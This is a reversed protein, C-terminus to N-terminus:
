AHMKRVRPPACLAKPWGASGAVELQLRPTQRIIRNIKLGCVTDKRKHFSRRAPPTSVVPPRDLHNAGSIPGSSVAGFEVDDLV